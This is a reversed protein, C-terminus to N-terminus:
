NKNLKLQKLEAIIYPTPNSHYVILLNTTHFYSGQIRNQTTKM